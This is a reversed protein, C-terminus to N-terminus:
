STCHQQAHVEAARNMPIIPLSGHPHSFAM